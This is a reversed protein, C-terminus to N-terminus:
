FLNLAKHVDEAIWQMWQLDPCAAIFIYLLPLFQSLCILKVFNDYLQYKNRFEQTPFYLLSWFLFSVFWIFWPYSIYHPPTWLALSGLETDEQMLSVVAFIECAGMFLILCGFRGLTRIGLEHNMRYWDRTAGVGIFAWLVLRVLNIKHPPPIWLLAKLLFADLDAVIFMSWVVLVVLCNKFGIRERPNRKFWQTPSRFRVCYHWNFHRVNLLNLTKLGMWLGLANCIFIDIILHDWWCEKFNPLIHQLSFEVWEFGISVIWGLGWSRVIIAKGWHGLIHAVIFEDTLCAWIADFTLSCDDAYDREPLPVGLKPDIMAVLKRAEHVGIYVLYLMLSSYSLGVIFWFHWFLPHPRTLPGLVVNKPLYTPM